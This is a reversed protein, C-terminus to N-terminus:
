VARPPPVPPRAHLSAPPITDCKAVRGLPTIGDSWVPSGSDFLYGEGLFFCLLCAPATTCGRSVPTAAEEDSACPACCTAARPAVPVMVRVTFARLNAVPMPLLFAILALHVFARDDLRWLRRAFRVVKGARPRDQNRPILLRASM